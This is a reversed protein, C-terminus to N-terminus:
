GQRGEVFPISVPGPGERWARKAARGDCTSRGSGGGQHRHKRKGSVTIALVEEVLNRRRADLTEGTAVDDKVGHRRQYGAPSLQRIPSKEASEQQKRANDVTEAVPIEHLSAVDANVARQLRTRQLYEKGLVKDSPEATKSERWPAEWAVLGSDKLRPRDRVSQIIHGQSSVGIQWRDFYIQLLTHAHGKLDTTLLYAPQRYYLRGSKRKRYPTPAVVLLRLTRKRAGGQWYLDSLLKYRVRRRKGGYFLKTEKWAISEDKRVQEPTFKNLDYFRRSGAPARFCLVADKRARAIVEVGKLAIAFVTRNCFSGDVALLLTKLAAGSGNLVQRLQDVMSVFQKSLNHQRVAIRYQKWEEAAAKRGPRKVRSAEQFRIPLARTSVASHKHLPVLLSAQLFRLGLMLNVHFPPSLPDRQFFAQQIMRGTKHLRTDDVAVGIYNGTCWPLARRLIPSFLKQPDWHCRSFLFYEPAWGLQQRGNTWIIRSITRRGLCVLGGVAQRLAREFSRKQPFVDTWEHVTELFARLLTM